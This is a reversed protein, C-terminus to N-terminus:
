NLKLGNQTAAIPNFIAIVLTRSVDCVIRNTHQVHIQSQHKSYRNSHDVAHSYDFCTVSIDLQKSTRSGMSPNTPIIKVLLFVKSAMFIFILAFISSFLYGDDNKKKCCGLKGMIIRHYVNEFNYVQMLDNLFRIREAWDIRYLKNKMTKHNNEWDANLNPVDCINEKQITFSWKAILM